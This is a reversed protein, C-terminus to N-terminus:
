TGGEEGLCGLADSFARVACVSTGSGVDWSVSIWTPWDRDQAMKVMILRAHYSYRAESDFSRYAEQFAERAAPRDGEALRQAAAHFYAEGWLKWPMEVAEARQRLQEPSKNGRAMELLSAVWAATQPPYLEGTVQVAGARADLLSQAEEAQGLLRLCTASWLLAQAGGPDDDAIARAHALAAPLDGVEALVLAPYVHKYFRNNPDFQTLTELDAMAGADDGLWYHLRWRYHLTEWRHLPQDILGLAQTRAELAEAFRGMSELCEARARIPWHHTPDLEHGRDAWELSAEYHQIVHSDDRTGESGRYVEAALRHAISLLYCPYVGYHGNEVLLRLNAEAEPFAELSRNAYLQQNRARALHLTAQPYFSQTAARLANARRYSVIAESPDQYHIALGRFFWADAPMGGRATRMAEAQEFTRQANEHRGLEQQAWALLYCERLDAAGDGVVPQLLDIVSEPDAQGLRLLSRALRLEDADAGMSEAVSLHSAELGPNRYDFYALQEYADEILERAAQHRSSRMTWVLGAALLVVATTAALAATRAKNRRMWKIAKEVATARRSLIPRGSAFRRLDEALEAASAHRCTPQKDMARLCITELDIPTAPAVRRPPLPDQTCIGSIIQARTRGAFPKSRTLVEYLTVGLSYIDTRFDVDDSDGRLQEPSLYAPTGMVEGSITLHPEDTLRALGFDTLHLRDNDDLLLNHPKVDRHIIGLRHAHHLGDAVEAMLRAVHRYDDRTWSVGPPAETEDSPVAGGFRGSEPEVGGGARTHIRVSSSDRLRTSSLLDPRSRIVTDLSVGEILEMAYFFHGASEGQAYVPVVNTHHLRAAAQAESKFRQVATQGHRAYRPLVKLAVIRGLSLQRARYVIGMGGRGIEAVIEFDGLRTGPELGPEDFTHADAAGNRADAEAPAPRLPGRDLSFADRLDQVLAAEDSEPISRTAEPDAPIDTEAPGLVHGCHPCAAQRTEDALPVSRGCHPCVANEVIGEM